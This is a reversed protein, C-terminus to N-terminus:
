WSSVLNFSLLRPTQSPKKVIESRHDFQLCSNVPFLAIKCCSDSM